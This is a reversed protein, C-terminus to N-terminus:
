RKGSRAVVLLDAPAGSSIKVRCLDGSGATRATTAITVMVFYHGEPIIFQHDEVLKPMEKWWKANM